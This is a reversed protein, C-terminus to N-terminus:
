QKPATSAPRDPIRYGHDHCLLGREDETLADCYGKGYAARLFAAVVDISWDDVETAEAWLDVLRLDIDLELLEIRSPSRSMPAFTGLGGSMVHPFLERKGGHAGVDSDPSAATPEREQNRRGSVGIVCRGAPLARVPTPGGDRPVAGADGLSYLGPM